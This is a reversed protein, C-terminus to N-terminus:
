CTALTDVPCDFTNVPCLRTDCYRTQIPCCGSLDASPSPCNVCTGYCSAACTGICSAMCSNQCSFDATELCRICESVGRTNGILIQAGNVTGRLGDQDPSPDFSEVQLTDLDLRLKKM